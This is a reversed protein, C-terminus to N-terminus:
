RAVVRLHDFRCSLKEHFGTGRLTVLQGGQSQGETPSIGFLQANVFSIFETQEKSFDIGNNTVAVVFVGVPLLASTCIMSTISIWKASRGEIEGFKCGFSETRAFLRGTVTVSVESLQEAATPTLSTVGPSFEYLYQQSSEGVVIDNLLVHVTVAQPESPPTVCQLSSSSRVSLHTPTASGFRCMLRASTLESIAFCVNTDIM